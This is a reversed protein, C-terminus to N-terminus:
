PSAWNPFFANDNILTLEGTEMAYVWIEPLGGPSANGDEDLMPFRQMLLHTGTSNWEFFSSNYREDYVLPEIDGTRADMLYVHHGRTWRDDTYQRAIAVRQGDPHWRANADDIADDPNTFATFDRDLLDAIQLYTFIQGGRRIIEPFILEQGNPSLTGMAGHSSPIFRLLPDDGTAEFDYIIIGPQTIDASYFGLHRSDAAWRPSHAVIQPDAVLPETQFNTSKMDVLWIRDLGPGGTSLDSNWQARQYVLWSGDPSFSPNRCSADQAPCNSIDFVQDRTTDLLFINNLGTEDDRETYALWRGDTSYAFDFIGRDSFTMQQQIDPNDIEAVWVNQVDGYAPYLFAVRPSQRAPDTLFAIGAVLALALTILSVVTLDLRSLKM